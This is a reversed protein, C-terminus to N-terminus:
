LWTNTEPSSNTSIKNHVVSQLYSLKTINGLLHPTACLLMDEFSCNFSVIHKLAPCQLFGALLM